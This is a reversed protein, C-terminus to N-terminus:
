QIYQDPTKTGDNPPDILGLSILTKVIKRANAHLVLFHTRDNHEACPVPLKNPEHFISNDEHLRVVEVWCPSPDGESTNHENCHTLIEHDTADNVACVQCLFLGIPGGDHIVNKTVIVRQTDHTM